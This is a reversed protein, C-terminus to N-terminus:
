CVAATSSACSFIYEGRIAHLPAGWSSSSISTLYVNGSRDVVVDYGVDGSGSGLVTHWVLPGGNDLKCVLVDHPGSFARRPSGWTADSFGVLYLNGSSDRTMEYFKDESSSGFFTNWFVTIGVPALLPNLPAGSPDALAPSLVCVGTLFYIVWSLPQFCIRGFGNLRM